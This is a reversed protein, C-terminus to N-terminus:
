QWEPQGKPLRVSTAFLNKVDRAQNFKGVLIDATQGANDMLGWNSGAALLMNVFAAHGKMLAWM